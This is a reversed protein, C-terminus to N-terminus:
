GSRTVWEPKLSLIKSLQNKQLSGSGNKESHETKVDHNLINLIHIKSYLFLNVLHAVFPSRRKLKQVELLIEEFKEEYKSKKVVTM